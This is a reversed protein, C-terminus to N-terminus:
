LEMDLEKVHELNGHLVLFVINLINLYGRLKIKLWKARNERLIQIVQFASM